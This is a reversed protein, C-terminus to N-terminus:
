MKCRSKDPAVIFLPEVRLDFLHANFICIERHKHRLFDELPLLIV